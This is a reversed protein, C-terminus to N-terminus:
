NGKHGAKILAAAVAEGPTDGHGTVTRMSPRGPTKLAYWTLCCKFGQFVMGTRCSEILWRALGHPELSQVWDDLSSFPDTPTM